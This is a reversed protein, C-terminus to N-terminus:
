RTRLACPGVSPHRQSQGPDAARQRAEAMAWGLLFFFWGGMPMSTFASTSQVPWLQIFIAAFLGVRLPEPERWLGRGLPVLWAIAMAIFLGLGIFGGDDLAQLYHNHPHVWCIVAGGGDPQSGDFTPRFYEPRRCGTGFGNFGMGSIPNLRGVEWARAYLQGYPSVSFHEMQSTFKEVLRYYASPAVVPSAALTLTGAIATALVVPRLRGILVAVVALGLVALVLPMRQGILVMMVVSGALLAYALATSRMGPKALLAAVPPLVAPIVIRALPPGARPAAFPGTLVGESAPPWGILNRGTVEQIISNLVIWAASAAILRYMWRRTPATRLVVFEMAVVLLLFRVTALAQILSAQGGEGLGTGPIPLSCLVLWSWWAGAVWVWPTRLWSWNGSLASGFLLCLDALGIAVEAVGHAHMLLLPLLMVSVVAIRDLNLLLRSDAIASMRRNTGAPPGLPLPASAVSVAPM